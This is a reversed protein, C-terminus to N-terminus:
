PKEEKKLVPLNGTAEQSHTCAFRFTKGCYPDVKDVSWKSTFSNIVTYSSFWNLPYFFYLHDKSLNELKSSIM